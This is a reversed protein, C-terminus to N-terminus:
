SLDLWSSISRPDVAHYYIVNGDAVAYTEIDSDYIVRKNTDIAVDVLDEISEIYVYQKGNQSPFDGESIWESYQSRDIRMKLEDLDVRRSNWYTFLGSVAIAVLGLGSLIGVLGTNPSQQRVGGGVTTSETTSASLDDALWYGQDAFQITSTSNLSGEYTDGQTSETQYSTEHVLRTSVEGLDGVEDRVQSTENLVRSANMTANLVVRGNEVTTEEDALKRRRDFLTMEDATAQISVVLRHSVNVPRDDPVVAVASLNLIPTADFFYRPQDRLVQSENYIETGNLVIASDQVTTEFEQVDVQQAPVQEVPPTLYVYGAGGIALLGVVLFLASVSRGYLAVQHKARDTVSMLGTTKWDGAQVSLTEPPSIWQYPRPSEAHVGASAPDEVYSVAWLSEDVTDCLSV